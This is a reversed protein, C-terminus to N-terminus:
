QRIHILKKIAEKMGETANRTADRTGNLMEAAKEKWEDLDFDVLSEISIPTRQIGRAIILAVFSYPNDINHFEENIYIDYKTITPIRGRTYDKYIVEDIKLKLLDVQFGELRAKKQEKTKTNDKIAQTILLSDVNVRSEKNRVVTLKKLDLRVEEFHLKKKFLAFPNYDVYIRPFEAMLEEKYGGPNSLKLGEIDVLTKTLGVKMNDMAIEVKSASNLMGLLINKIIIDKGFSIAIIVIVIFIIIKRM